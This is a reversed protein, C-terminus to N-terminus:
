KKDLFPLKGDIETDYSFQISTFKDSIIKKLNLVALVDDVFSISIKLLKSFDTEFIGMFIGILKCIQPNLMNRVHNARYKIANKLQM